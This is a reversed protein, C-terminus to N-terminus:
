RTIEQLLNRYERLIKSFLLYDRTWMDGQIDLWGLFFAEEFTLTGKIISWVVDETTAVLTTVKPLENGRVVTLRGNQVLLGYNKNKVILLMTRQEDGAYKKYLEAINVRKNVYEVGYTLLEELFEGM